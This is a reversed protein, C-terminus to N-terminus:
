LVILSGFDCLKLLCPKMADYSNQFAKFNWQNVTPPNTAIIEKFGQIMCICHNLGIFLHRYNKGSRPNTKYIQLCKLSIDTYNFPIITTPRNLHAMWQVFLVHWSFQDIIGVCKVISYSANNWSKINLSILHNTLSMEYTINQIFCKVNKTFATKM